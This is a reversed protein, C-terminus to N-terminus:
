KKLAIRDVKYISKYIIQVSGKVLRQGFIRRSIM